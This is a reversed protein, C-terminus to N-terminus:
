HMFTMTSKGDSVYKTGHLVTLPKIIPIPALGSFRTVIM